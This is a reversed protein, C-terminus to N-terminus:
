RSGVLGSWYRIEVKWSVSRGIESGSLAVAFSRCGADIECTGVKCNGCCARELFLGTTARQYQISNCRRSAKGVAQMTRANIPNGSPKDAFFPPFDAPNTRVMM